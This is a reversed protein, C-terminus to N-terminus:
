SQQEFLRHEVLFTRIQVLLQRKRQRIEFDLSGRIGILEPSAELLASLEPGDIMQLQVITDHWDGLLTQLVKCDEILSDLYAVDSEPDNRSADAVYRLNKIAIRFKHWASDDGAALAKRYAKRAKKMVGPLLGHPIEDQRSELRRLFGRWGALHRQLQASQLVESVADHSAQLRPLLLPELLAYQGPPLLKSSSEQFVDWDRAQNTVAFFGGWSELFFHAASSEMQKLLSRTRRIHVRFQHLDYPQYETLLNKSHALISATLEGFSQFLATSM